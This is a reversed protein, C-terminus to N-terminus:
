KKETFLAKEKFRVQVGAQKRWVQAKAEGCGTVASLKGTEHSEFIAVHNIIDCRTQMNNLIEAFFCKSVM